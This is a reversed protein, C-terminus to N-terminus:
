LELDRVLQDIHEDIGQMIENKYDEQVEDNTAFCVPSYSRSIETSSLESIEAKKSQIEHMKASIRGLLLSSDPIPWVGARRLTEMLKELIALKSIMMIIGIM